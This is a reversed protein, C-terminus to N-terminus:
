AKKKIKLYNGIRTIMIDYVKDTKTLKRHQKKYNVSM